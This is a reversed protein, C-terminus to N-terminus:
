HLEEVLEAIKQKVKKDLNWDTSVQQNARMVETLIRLKEIAQRRNRESAPFYGFTSFIKELFKM